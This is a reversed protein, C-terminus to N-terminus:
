HRKHGCLMHLPDLQMSAYILSKAKALDGEELALLGLGHVAEANRPDTSALRSYLQEAEAFDGNLRAQGATELLAATNAPNLSSTSAGDQEEAILSIVEAPGQPPESFFSTTRTSQSPGAMNEPESVAASTASGSGQQFWNGLMM